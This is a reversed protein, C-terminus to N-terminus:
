SEPEPGLKFFVYSKSSYFTGCKKSILYFNYLFYSFWWRSKAQRSGLHGMYSAPVTLLLRLWLWYVADSDRWFPVAGCGQHSTVVALFSRLSWFNWLRKVVKGWQAYGHPPFLYPHYNKHTGLYRDHTGKGQVGHWSLPLFIWQAQTRLCTCLYSMQGSATNVM